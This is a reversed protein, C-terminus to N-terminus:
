VSIWFSFLFRVITPAEKNAVVVYRSLRTRLDIVRLFRGRGAVEALDVAVTDKFVTTRPVAVIARPPRPRTRRCVACAETVRQLTPALDATPCGAEKLLHLLRAAGPHAYPRHLRGLVAPLRVGASLVARVARSPLPDPSAAAGGPVGVEATSGVVVADPRGASWGVGVPPVGSAEAPAAGAVDSVGAAAAPAGEDLNSV